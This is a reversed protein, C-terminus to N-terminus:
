AQDFHPRFLVKIGTRREFVDFALKWESLMFDHTILPGMKIIQNELLHIARTWSEPTTANSGTVTLEKDCVEDLGWTIHKGIRELQVFRGYRRVLHLLHRAMLPTGSCEYVVDAGLGQISVDQVLAFIDRTEINVVYDAGLDHAVALRDSDESTGLVIVTAHSAKLIQLTLLGVTGSGAIVALDGARVTPATLLVSHVIRALPETIAGERYSTHEPLRHLNQAPVVLYEAFGGNVESDISIEGHNHNTSHDNHDRRSNSTQFRTQSTVRLNLLTESIGQGVEIIEGAIEHGLIVPPKVQLEDRYIRLDTDCLGAAHVKLKVQGPGPNPEPTECVKVNGMGAAFKM